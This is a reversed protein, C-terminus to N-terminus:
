EREKEETICYIDCCFIWKAAIQGFKGKSANISALLANLHVASELAESSSVGGGFRAKLATSIIVRCGDKTFHSSNEAFREPMEEYSCNIDIGLSHAAGVLRRCVAAAAKSPNETILRMHSLLLLRRRLLILLAIAAAATISLVACLIVYIIDSATESSTISETQTGTTTSTIDATTEDTYAAFDNQEDPSYTTVTDEPGGGANDYNFPDNNDQTQIDGSNDDIPPQTQQEPSPVTNEGGSVSLETTLQTTDAAEAAESDSDDTDQATNVTETVAAATTTLETVSELPVETVTPPEAMQLSAPANDWDDSDGATEDISLAYGGYGPTMEYTLWGYGNVYVEVWAHARSDSISLTVIDGPNGQELMDSPKIVFGECYRAPIGQSRCLLVAASAFHTCSGSKSENLFWDVFDAGFPRKGSELSYECISALKTRIYKLEDDLTGGSYDDFFSGPDFSEPLDLCDRYATNRLLLEDSDLVDGASIEGGSANAIIRSRWNATNPFYVAYRRGQETSEIMGACNSPYYKVSDSVSVNKIFIYGSSIDQPDAFYPYMRGCFFDPSTLKTELPTADTYEDWRTGTYSVGTFGKLYVSNSTVPLTVSLMHRGSFEIESNSGLKGDHTIETDSYIPIATRIDDALKKWSFTKMYISTNTRLENASEPRSYGSIAIGAASLIFALAMLAAAYAGCHAASRKDGGYEEPEAIECALTGCISCILMIFASYNPVLGFYLCLEPLPVTVALVLLVSTHRIVSICISYSIIISIFILTFTLASEPNYKGSLEYMPETNDSFIIACFRNAGELIGDKLRDSFIFFCIAAAGLIILLVTQELKERRRLLICILSFAICSVASAATVLVTSETISSATLFSLMSGVAGILAIATRIILGALSAASHDSIRVAASVSLSKEMKNKMISIM